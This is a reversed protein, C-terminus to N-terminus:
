RPARRREAKPHSCLFYRLVQELRAVGETDGRERCHKMDDVIYSRICIEGDDSQILYKGLEAAVIEPIHEHDAIAEVEEATLDCLALCDEYTLM